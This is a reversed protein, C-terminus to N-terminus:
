AGIKHIVNLNAADMFVLARYENGRAVSKNWYSEAFRGIDDADDIADELVFANIDSSLPFHVIYIKM